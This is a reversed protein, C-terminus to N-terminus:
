NVKLNSFVVKHEKKNVIPVKIFGQRKKLLTFIVKDDSDVVFVDIVDLNSEPVTKVVEFAIYVM